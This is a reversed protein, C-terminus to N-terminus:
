EGGEADERRARHLLDAKRLPPSPTRRPSPGASRSTSTVTRGRPASRGPACAWPPRTSTAAPRRPPSWNFARTSASSTATLTAPFTFYEEKEDPEALFLPHHGFVIIPKRAAAVEALATELWDTQKQTEGEVPTKWLQTNLGILVCDPLSKAYYDAGLAERYAKLLEPKADNGVDHNGPVCFCDTKLGARIAKFDRIEKESGPTNVLDGCIVVFAPRPELSNIHVVALKFTEVDHEYGGMGLQTDCLQVFTFGAPRSAQQSWAARSAWAGAAAASVSLFSRRTLAM